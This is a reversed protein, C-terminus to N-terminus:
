CGGGGGGIGDSVTVTSGDGGTECGTLTGFSIMAFILVVYKLASDGKM